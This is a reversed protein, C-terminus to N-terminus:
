VKQFRVGKLSKSEFATKIKESVIVAVNFDKIRFINVNPVFDPNVIIKTFNRYAVSECVLGPIAAM